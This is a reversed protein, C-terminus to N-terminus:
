VEPRPSPLLHQHYRPGPPTAAQFTSFVASNGRLSVSVDASYGLL